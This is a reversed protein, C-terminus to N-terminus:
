SRPARNPCVSAATPNPCAVVDLTVRTAPGSTLKVGKFLVVGLFFWFLRQYFIDHPLGFVSFVILLLLGFKFIGDFSWLYYELMRFIMVFFVAGVTILGILGFEALVWIPTSHIVLPAGNATTGHVAAGLGSGFLPYERFLAPTVMNVRKDRYWALGYLISQWRETASSPRIPLADRLFGGALGNADFLSPWGLFVLASNLYDISGSIIQPTNPVILVLLLGIMAGKFLLGWARFGLTLLGLLLVGSTIFATRSQTFYIAAVFLGFLLPTYSRSATKRRGVAVLSLFGAFILLLQFGFANPNLSEGYMQNDPTVPLLGRFGYSRIVWLALDGLALVIAVCTLIRVVTSPGAVPSAIMLLGGTAVYGLIILWGMGRNVFAWDTYGFRSWGLVLGVLILLSLAGLSLPLHPFVKSFDLRRYHLLFLIGGLIAIPDALNVNIFGAGVPLWTHYM